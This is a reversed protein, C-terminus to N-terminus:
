EKIQIFSSGSGTMIIKLLEMNEIPIQLKNIVYYELHNILSINNLNKQEIIKKFENKRQKLYNQDFLEFIMKTSYKIDHNIIKYKFEIKPIELIKNGFDSVLAFKFQYIFFPIDSGLKLAIQYSLKPTLLINNLKLFFNIIVGANSSGGGFGAKIPIEKKIIILYNINIKFENNLFKLSKLILDDKIEIEKSNFYYKIELTSHKSLEINDEYNDILVFISKIKHKKFWIKKKYVDLGLNIKPYSKLTYIM